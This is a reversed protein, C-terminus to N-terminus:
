VNEKVTLSYIDKKRGYLRGNIRLLNIIGKRNWRYITIRHVGFLKAIDSVKMLENGYFSHDM